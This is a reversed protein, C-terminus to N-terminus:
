PRGDDGSEGFKQALGGDRRNDPADRVASQKGAGESTTSPRGAGSDGQWQQGAALAAVPGAPRSRPAKRYPGSVGNGEVWRHASNQGIPGSFRTSDAPAM